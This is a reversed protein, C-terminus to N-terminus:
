RPRAPHRLKRLAKAEIQRIRERSVSRDADPLRTGQPSWREGGLTEAVEEYTREVGDDLGFRLRIVKAERATLTELLQGMREKLGLAEYNEEYSGPPPLLKQERAEQFSLLQVSDFDKHYKKPLKISYLSVPFLEKPEVYFFNALTMATKTYRIGEVETGRKCGPTLFPSRTLALLYCLEGYIVGVGEAMAKISADEGFKERLRSLLIANKFKFEIRLDKM